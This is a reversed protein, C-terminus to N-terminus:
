AEAGATPVGGDPTFTVDRGALNVNVGSANTTLGELSLGRPLNRLTLPQELAETAMSATGPPLDGVIRPDRFAISTPGAVTLGASVTVQGLLPVDATADVRGPDRDPTIQLGLAGSLDSYSLFATGQVRSVRAARANDYARLGNLHLNLRTIPVPRSGSAPIEGSSLDVHALRGSLVQTLVPLGAVHVSPAGAAGTAQQFAESTRHEVWATTLRDACGAAAVSCLLGFAAYRWTRPKPIARMM